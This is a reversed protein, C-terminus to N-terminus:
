NREVQALFCGHAANHAHVMAIQPDDLLTRVRADAEGPMALLAGHLMGQCDFGRLGLTRRDLLEPVTDVHVAAQQADKRVYIAYATRFPTAVDHSVHNLLILSEGAEAEALSIRCPYGSAGARVRRANRRALAADDMPFLPEFIARELGAIRYTM